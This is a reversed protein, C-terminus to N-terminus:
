VSSLTIACCALDHEPRPIQSVTLRPHLGRASFTRASLHTYPTRGSSKALINNQLDPGHKPSELMNRKSRLGNIWKIHIAYDPRDPSIEEVGDGIIGGPGKARKRVLLNGNPLKEIM